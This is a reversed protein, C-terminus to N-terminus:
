KCYVSHLTINFNTSLVNANLWENICNFTATINIQSCNKNPGTVLISTNDLFLIPISKDNITRPLDNIYFLLVIPRFDIGTSSWAINRGM